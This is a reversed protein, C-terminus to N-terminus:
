KQRGIKIIYDKYSLKIYIDDYIFRVDGNKIFSVCWYGGYNGEFKQAVKNAKKWDDDPFEQLVLLIVMKAFELMSDDTGEEKIIIFDSNSPPASDMKNKNIIKLYM